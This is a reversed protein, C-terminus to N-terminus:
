RRLTRFTATSAVGAGYGQVALFGLNKAEQMQRDALGFDLVPKGNTFGNYMVNPLGAFM